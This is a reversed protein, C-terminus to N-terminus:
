FQHSCETLFSFLFRHFLPLCLFRSLYRLEKFSPAIQRFKWICGHPSMIIGFIVTLHCITNFDWNHRDPETTISRSGPPSTSL